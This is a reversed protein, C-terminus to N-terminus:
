TCPDKVPMPAPAGGVKALKRRWAGPSVGVINKFSRNFASESAYGMEEAVAAISINSEKLKRSALQVRWRALYRIPTEGVTQAFREALISRSVGAERALADVTWAHGPRAHILRLARAINPDRLGALWGTSADSMSEIYRRLVRIFLLESLRALVIEGGARSTQTEQVASEILDVEIHNGEPPRAAVFQCPLADLLPNFPSADCGLYGCVFHLAPARSNSLDLLFPLPQDGQRRYNDLNPALRRGPESGFVHGHGHPYIIIDGEDLKVPEGPGDIPEAWCSGHLIIHFPIVHEAGPMVNKCVWAMPPTEAVMPHSARVDFFVAGILRVAHLLDSLVDM